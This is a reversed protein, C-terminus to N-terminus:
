DLDPVPLHDKLKMKLGLKQLAEQALKDRLTDAEEQTSLVFDYKLLWTGEEVAYEEALTKDM